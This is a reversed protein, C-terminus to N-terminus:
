IRNTLPETGGRSGTASGLSNLRRVEVAEVIVPWSARYTRGRQGEDRHHDDLLSGDPAAPRIM